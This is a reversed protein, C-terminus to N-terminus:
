LVICFQSNASFGEFRFSKDVKVVIFGWSPMFWRLTDPGICGMDM